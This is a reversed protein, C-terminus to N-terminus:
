ATHALKRPMMASELSKTVPDNRKFLETKAKVTIKM